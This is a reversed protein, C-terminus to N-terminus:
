YGHRFCGYVIHGAKDEFAILKLHAATDENELCQEKVILVNGTKRERYHAWGHSSALADSYVQGAGYATIGALVWVVIKGRRTLKM